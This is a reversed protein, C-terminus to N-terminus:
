GRTTKWTGKLARFPFMQPNNNLNSLVGKSYDIKSGESGTGYIDTEATSQVLVGGKLISGGQNSFTGTVYIVGYITVSNLNLNGDIVMIVPNDFSGITYGGPGTGTFNINKKVGSEKATLWIIEGTTGSPVAPPNTTNNATYTAKITAMSNLESPTMGFISQFSPFATNEVESGTIVGSGSASATGASQIAVGTPNQDGTDGFTVTANGGVQVDGGATIAGPITIGFFYKKVIVQATAPQGGSSGTSTLKWYFTHAAAQNGREDAFSWTGAFNRVHPVTRATYSAGSVLTRTSSGNYSFARGASGLNAQQASTAGAYNGEGGSSTGSYRWNPDYNWFRWSNASSDSYNAPNPDPEIRQVIRPDRVSDPNESGSSWKVELEDDSTGNPTFNMRALAEHVGGEAAYFALLMSKERRSNFDESSSITLITLGLVMLVLVAMLTAIMISGRAATSGRGGRGRRPEKRRIM